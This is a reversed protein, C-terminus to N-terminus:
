RHRGLKQRGIEATSKLIEFDGRLVDAAYNRMALAYQHLQEQMEQTTLPAPHPPTIKLSPTRLRLLMDLGVHNALWLDENARSYGILNGGVLRYLYIFPNAERVEAQIKVATSANMYVVHGVVLDGTSETVRFGFEDELFSFTERCMEELQTPFFKGNM